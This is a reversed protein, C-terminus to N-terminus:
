EVNCCEYYIEYNVCDLTDLDTNINNNIWTEEDENVNKCWYDKYLEKLIRRVANEENIFVGLVNVESLDGFTQTIVVFSKM